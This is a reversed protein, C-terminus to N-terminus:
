GPGRDPEVACRGARGPPTRSLSKVSTNVPQDVAMSFGSSQLQCPSNLHAETQYASLLKARPTVHQPRILWPSDSRLACYNIGPHLSQTPIAAGEVLEGLALAKERCLRRNPEASCPRDSGARSRSHLRRTSACAM